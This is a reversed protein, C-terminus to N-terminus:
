PVTTPGCDPYHRLGVPTVKNSWGGTTRTWSRARGLLDTTARLVSMIRGRTTLKELLRNEVSPLLWLGVHCYTDM